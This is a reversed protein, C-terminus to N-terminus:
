VSAFESLVTDAIPYARPSLRIHTNTTEITGNLSGYSISEAFFEFPDRGTQEEFLKRNIGETTRLNLVATQCAIELEDPCEILDYAFQGNQIKKMYEHLDAVNEMRKGHYWSGAAPGLGIYPLNQWTRLNHMCAFGGRAFNSIEYQDYGNSTLIEIATKYMKCDTEEDAAHTKGAQMQQTLPTGEEWTLSYASIHKPTLEIAKDLTQKWSALDSGPIAFILDSGINDFGARRASDFASYIDRVRHLRGLTELHVPDFSQVGLSIRNVGNGKLMAFLEDNAQTPNVEVTCEAIKSSPHNMFQELLQALDAEPLVSPSGGGIYLTRIPVDITYLQAEALVTQVYQGTDSTDVPVSYFACYSCKSQCFPVHVYLSLDEGFFPDTGNENLSM